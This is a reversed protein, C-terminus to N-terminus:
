NIQALLREYGAERTTTSGTIDNWFELEHIPRDHVQKALQLSLLLGHKGYDFRLMKQWFDTNHDKDVFNPSGPAPDLCHVGIRSAEFAYLWLVGNSSILESKVLQKTQVELCLLQRILNVHKGNRM